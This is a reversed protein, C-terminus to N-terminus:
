QRSERRELGADELLHWVADTVLGDQEPGPLSADVVFYRDPSESALELYGTRVRRHFELTEAEIRDLKRNQRSLRRFGEEPDLDLLVTLDPVLGGTALRDAERVPVGPLGRGRVQYALTADTFRECIVVQGKELAPRVVQEVNSARAALYLLMETMPVVILGPDLLIGRIREAVPSGGPERTHVVNLGSDGLTRVLSTCRSTKGAGEM